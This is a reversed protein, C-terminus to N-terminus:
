LEEERRKLYFHVAVALLISGVCVNRSLNSIQAPEKALSTKESQITEEPASPRPVVPLAVEVNPTPTKSELAAPSTPEDVKKEQIPLAALTPTLKRLRVNRFRVKAGVPLRQVVFGFMGKENEVNLEELSQNEFLMTENLAWSATGNSVRVSFQNKPELTIAMDSTGEELKTRYASAHQYGSFDQMAMFRLGSEREGIVSPLWRLLVGFGLGKPSLEAQSPNEFTVECLMEVDDQFPLDFALSAWRADNGTAVFADEEISWRGGTQIFATLHQGPTIAVWDGKALDTLFADHQKSEMVFSRAAAPLLADHDLKKLLASKTESPSNHPLLVLEQIGTGLGGTGASVEGRFRVEPLLLENLYTKTWPQLDKGMDKMCRSALEPEGSLWAAMASMSLRYQRMLLPLDQQGLYGKVMSLFAPKVDISGFTEFPANTEDAVDKAAYFLQMPVGTDFRGTAVCARGFALMEEHSGCWRPRLAWLYNCYALRYDFQATVARNFWLRLDGVGDSQGMSVTIMLSAAEPRDSRAEWAKQLHKSASTLYRNFGQWQEDKVESAWDDSRELWALEVDGYGILTEKVWVDWSSSAMAEQWRTLYTPMTVEVLDLVSMQHRVFVAAEDPLYTGDSIAHIMLDVLEGRVYRYEAGQTMLQPIQVRLALAREATSLEPSHLLKELVARSSRWDGHEDYFARAALLLLLPDDPASVLLEKFDKALMGLIGDCVFTQAQLDLAENVLRTAKSSWTKGAWREKAPKLLARVYWQKEQILWDKELFAKKAQPIPAAEFVRQEAPRLPLASAYSIWSVGLLLVLKLCM